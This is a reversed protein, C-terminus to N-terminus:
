VTRLFSAPCEPITAILLDAHLDCCVKYCLMDRVLGILCSHDVFHSRIGSRLQELEELRQLEDDVRDHYPDGETQM